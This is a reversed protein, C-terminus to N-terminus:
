RQNTAVAPASPCEGTPGRGADCRLRRISWGNQQGPQRLASRRGRAIDRKHIPPERLSVDTTSSIRGTTTTTTTTPGSSAVTAADPESQLLETPNPWATTTTAATTTTTTTWCSARHRPALCRAAEAAPWVSENTSENQVNATTTTTANADAAAAQVAATTPTDHQGHKQKHNM